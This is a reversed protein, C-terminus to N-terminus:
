FRGGLRFSARNVVVKSDSGEPLSEHHSGALELVGVSIKYHVSAQGLVFAQSSTESSTIPDEMSLEGYSAGLGLGWPAYPTYEFGTVVARTQAPNGFVDQTSNQRASASIRAVDGGAVLRVDGLMRAGDDVDADAYDVQSFGFSLSASLWDTADLGVRATGTHAAYDGTPPFNESEEDFDQMRYDYVLGVVLRQGVDREVSAEPGHRLYDAPLRGEDEDNAELWTVQEGRYGIGVRTSRGLERRLAFRGGAAAEQAQNTPDDVPEAYSLPRPELRGTLELDLDDWWVFGAKADLRHLVRDLDDEKQYHYYGLSYDASLALGRTKLAAEFSPTVFLIEDATETQDEPVAYVNSSHEVGGTASASLSAQALLVVFPLAPTM